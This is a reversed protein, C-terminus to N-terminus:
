NSSVTPDFEHLSQTFTEGRTLDSFTSHTRSLLSLYRATSNGRKISVVRKALNPTESPVHVPLYQSVDYPHVYTWCDGHRLAIKRLLGAIFHPILRLYGGGLLPLALSRCGVVPVPIEILGCSWRFPTKPAGPFGFQPNWAPLVSSSYSFGCGRIIEPAWLSKSTLSFYPARYGAPPVGAIEGLNCFSEELDRRLLEPGLKFLATHSTGHSGVENGRAIIERVLDHDQKTILSSGNVFFTARIGMDSLQDLLDYLVQFYRASSTQEYREVDVTLRFVGTM